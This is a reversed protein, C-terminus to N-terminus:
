HFQKFWEPSFNSLHLPIEPDQNEAGLNWIFYFTFRSTCVSVVGGGLRIRDVFISWFSIIKERAGKSKRSWSDFTSAKELYLGFSTRGVVFIGTIEWLYLAFRQGCWLFCAVDGGCYLFQSHPIRTRNGLFLISSTEVNMTQLEFRSIGWLHFAPHKGRLFGSGASAFNTWSWLSARFNFPSISRLGSESDDDALNPKLKSIVLFDPWRM